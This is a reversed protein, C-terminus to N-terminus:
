KGSKSDYTERDLKLELLKWKEGLLSLYIDEKMEIDQFGAAKYCYYAPMNNEFVGLTVEEAGFLEFAFKEALLLMEKGYGRGRKTDDVIVFGFRITKKEADRYRLILHGVIGTEDFATLPYFNDPEECDGNNDIYKRNMDEATIPFSEYRDSTWKRFSAEDKCWSIITQADCPKYPRLKIM